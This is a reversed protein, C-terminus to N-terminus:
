RRIGTSQIKKPYTKGPICFDWPDTMPLLQWTASFHNSSCASRLLDNAPHRPSLNIQRKKQQHSTNFPFKPDSAHLLLVNILNEKSIFCIGSFSVDGFSGSHCVNWPCIGSDNLHKRSNEVVWPCLKTKPSEPYIYSRYEISIANEINKTIIM